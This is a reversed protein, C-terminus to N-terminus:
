RASWSPLAAWAARARHLWGPEGCRCGLVLMRRLSELAQEVTRPATTWVAGGAARLAELDAPRIEEENALILDPELDRVVDLRPNKTGRVRTGVLDAPHSCWDTAGVLLHPATSAIAETLSPVLSVVRSVSQPVPVPLGLDDRETM